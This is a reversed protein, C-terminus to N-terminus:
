NRSQAIPGMPRIKEVVAKDPLVIKMDKVAHFGDASRDVVSGDLGDVLAGIPGLLVGVGTTVDFAVFANQNPALNFTMPDATAPKFSTRQQWSFKYTGPPLEVFLCEDKNVGGVNAGNVFFNAPAANEYDILLHHWTGLFAYVHANGDNVTGAKATATFADPAKPQTAPTTCAALLLAAFFIAAAPKRLGSQM